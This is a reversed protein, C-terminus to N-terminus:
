KLPKYYNGHGTAQGASSSSTAKKSTHLLSNIKNIQSYFLSPNSNQYLFPDDLALSKRFFTRCYDLMEASDLDPQQQKFLTLLCSIGRSDKGKIVVYDINRSLKYEESWIGLLTDVFTNPKTHKTAKVSEPECFLAQVKTTMENEEQNSNNNQEVFNIENEELDIIDITDLVTLLDKM